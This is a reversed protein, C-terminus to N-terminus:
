RVTIKKNFRVLDFPSLKRRRAATTVIVGNLSISMFAFSKRNGFFFFVDFRATYFTMRCLNNLAVKFPFRSFPVAPCKRRRSQLDAPAFRSINSVRCEYPSSIKNKEQRSALFSYFIPFLVFLCAFFFFIPIVSVFAAIFLSSLFCGFLLFINYGITCTNRENQKREM